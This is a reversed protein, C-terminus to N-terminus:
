SPRMKASSSCRARSREEARARAKASMGEFSFITASIRRVSAAFPMFSPTCRRRVSVRPTFTVEPMSGRRLWDPGVSITSASCLAGTYEFPPSVSNVLLMRRGEGSTSSGFIWWAFRSFETSAFIWAFAAPASSASISSPRPKMASVFAVCRNKM